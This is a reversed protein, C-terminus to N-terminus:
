RCAPVVAVAGHQAGGRRAGVAHADARLGHVPLLLLARARPAEAATDGRRHVACAHGRVGVRQAGRDGLLLLGLAREVVVGVLTRAGLM